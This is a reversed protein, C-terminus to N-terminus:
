NPPFPFVPRTEDVSAAFIVKSLADSFESKPLIVSKEKQMSGLIKPFDASNMGLVTSSFGAASIKLHEKESEMTITEKPLNAVLESFVKSPISIEGEKEVKAGVGISVSIELNTSLVFVKTKKVSLLINGLIPLQARTSAFRSAISVAKQLNGQIIQLKM